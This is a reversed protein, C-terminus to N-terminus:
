KSNKVFCTVKEGLENMLANRIYWQGLLIDSTSRICIRNNLANM